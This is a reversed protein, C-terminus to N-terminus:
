EVDSALIQDEGRAEQLHAYSALALRDFLVEDFDAARSQVTLVLWINNRSFGTTWTPLLDDSGAYQYTEIEGLGAVDRQVTSFSDDDCRHGQQFLRLGLEGDNEGVSAATLRLVSGTDLGLGATWEAKLVEAESLRQLDASDLCPHPSADQAQVFLRTPAYGGPVGPQIQFVFEPNIWGSPAISTTTNVVQDEESFAISPPTRATVTSAVGVRDSDGTVVQGDLGRLPVAEPPESGACASALMFFVCLIIWRNM